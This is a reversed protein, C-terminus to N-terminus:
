WKKLKAINPCITDLPKKKQQVSCSKSKPCLTLFFQANSFVPQCESKRDQALKICEKSVQPNSKKVPTEQGLVLLPLISFILIM